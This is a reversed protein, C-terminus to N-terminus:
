MCDCTACADCERVPTLLVSAKAPKAAESPLTQKGDAVHCRTVLVDMM